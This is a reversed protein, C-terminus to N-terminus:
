VGPMGNSQTAFFVVRMPCLRPTAEQTAMVHSCMPVLRRDQTTARAGPHIAAVPTM